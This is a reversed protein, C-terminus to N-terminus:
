VGELTDLFGSPLQKKANLDQFGASVSWSPIGLLLTLDRHRETALAYRGSNTAPLVREVETAQDLRDFRVCLVDANGGAPRDCSPWVPRLAIANSVYEDDRAGGLM